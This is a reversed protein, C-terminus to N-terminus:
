PIDAVMVNSGSRDLQSYLVWQADSSVSIGYERNGEFGEPLPVILRTRKSSFQYARLASSKGGGARETFIIGDPILTWGKQQVHNPPGIVLEEPSASQSGSRPVPM